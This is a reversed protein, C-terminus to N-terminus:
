RQDFSQRPLPTLYTPAENYIPSVSEKRCSSSVSQNSSQTSSRPLIMVERARNNVLVVRKSGKILTPIQRILCYTLIIGIVLAMIILLSLSTLIVTKQEEYLWPKGVAIQYSRCQFPSIGPMQYSSVNIILCFNYIVNPALNKVIILTKSVTQCRISYREDSNKDPAFPDDTAPYYLLITGSYFDNIEVSVENQTGGTTKISKLEYYPRQLPIQMNSPMNQSQFNFRFPAQSTIEVNDPDFCTIYSPTFLSRPSTTTSGTHPIPRTTQEFSLTTSKRPETTNSTSEPDETTVPPESPKTTTTELITLSTTSSSSPPITTTSTTETPIETSSSTTDDTEPQTESKTETIKPEEFTTLKETTIEETINPEEITTPKETTIEETTQL